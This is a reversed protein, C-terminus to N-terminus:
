VLIDLIIILILSGIHIQFLNWICVSAKLTRFLYAMLNGLIRFIVKKDAQIAPILVPKAKGNRQELPRLLRIANIMM